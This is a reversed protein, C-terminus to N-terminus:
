FQGVRVVGKRAARYWGAYPDAEEGYDDAPVEFSRWAAAEQEEYLLEMMINCDWTVLEVWGKLEGCDFRVQTWGGAEAINIELVFLKTGAVLRGVKPSQPLPGRIDQEDLAELWSGTTLAGFGMGIAASYEVSATLKAADLKAKAVAKDAAAVEAAAAAEGKDVPVIEGSCEPMFVGMAKLGALIEAITELEDPSKSGVRLEIARMNTHLEFHGSEPNNSTIKSVTKLSVWHKDDMNTLDEDEPEDFYHLQATHPDFVFWRLQWGKGRAPSKKELWLAVRGDERAGPLPPFVEEPVGGGLDSSPAGLYRVVLDVEVREEARANACFELIAGMENVLKERDDM